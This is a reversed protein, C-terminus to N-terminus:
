WVACVSVGSVPVAAPVPVPVHRLTVVPGTYSYTVAAWALLWCTKTRHVDFMDTERGAM